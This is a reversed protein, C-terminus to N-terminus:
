TSLCYVPHCELSQFCSQLVAPDESDILGETRYMADGLYPNTHMCSAHLKSTKFAPFLPAQSVAHPTMPILNGSQPCPGTSKLCFRRENCFLSMVSHLMLNQRAVM